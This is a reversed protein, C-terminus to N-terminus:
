DRSRRFRGGHKLSAPKQMRTRSGCFTKPDNRKRSQQQTCELLLPLYELWVSLVHFSFLFVICVAFSMKLAKSIFSGRAEAFFVRAAFGGRDEM